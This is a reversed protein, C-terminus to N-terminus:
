SQLYTLNEPGVSPLRKWFCPIFSMLGGEAVGGEGARIYEPSTGHKQDDITHPM